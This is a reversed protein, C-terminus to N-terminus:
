AKYPGFLYLKKAIHSHYSYWGLADSLSPQYYGNWFMTKTWSKKRQLSSNPFGRWTSSITDLFYRKLLGTFCKGFPAMNSTPQDALRELGDALFHSTLTTTRLQLPLMPQQLPSCYYYYYYHHATTTTTLLLLLLLLLLPLRLLLLLQPPVTDTTTAAATAITPNWLRQVHSGRKFEICVSYPYTKTAISHLQYSESIRRTWTHNALQHGQKYTPM